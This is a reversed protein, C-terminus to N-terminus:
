IELEGGLYKFAACCLDPWDKLFEFRHKNREMFEPQIQADPENPHRKHWYFDMLVIIAGPIWHKSFTRIAHLFVPARKCADDVYMSIPGQFWDVNYLERRVLKINRHYGINGRVIDITDQGVTLDIGYKKAKEPEGKRTVFRDFSWVTANSKQAGEGLFKTGAGMWTGLEVINTNEPCQSAWKELDPGIETGGMSPIM